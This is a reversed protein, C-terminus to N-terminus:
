AFLELLQFSDDIGTQGLGRRQPRRHLGSEAENMAGRINQTIRLRLRADVNASLVLGQQPRDFTAERAGALRLGTQRMEELHGLTIPGSQKMAIVHVIQRSRVIRQLLQEARRTVM